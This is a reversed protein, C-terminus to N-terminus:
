LNLFSITDSVVADSGMMVVFGSSGIYFVVNGSGFVPADLAATGRGPVTLASIVKASEM